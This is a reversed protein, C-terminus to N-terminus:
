PGVHVQLNVQAAVDSRRMECLWDPETNNRDLSHIVRAQNGLDAWGSMNDAMATWIAV